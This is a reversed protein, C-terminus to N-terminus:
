VQYYKAHQVGVKLFSLPVQEKAHSKIGGYLTGKRRHLSESVALKTKQVLCRITPPWPIGGTGLLALEERFASTAVAAASSKTIIELQRFPAVVAVVAAPERKERKANKKENKRM